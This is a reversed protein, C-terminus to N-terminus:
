RPKARLFYPAGPSKTKRRYVKDSCTVYLYAFEPGGFVANSLFKDQPKAIVGGQRGTPDFMQLGAYSAVYLRGAKDVTMGDSGPRDRGTPLRLPLYYRERNTLRGDDEVRFTWLHPAGSDTVVLTGEGPWLILGNPRWGKAAVTPKGGPPLYYVQEGKPDTFWIEGRSNVVLDNSDVNEALTHVTGDLDYAVIKRDGMRCGYLRGDPGVM